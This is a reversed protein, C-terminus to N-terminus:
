QGASSATALALQPSLAAVQMERPRAPPASDDVLGWRMPDDQSQRKVWVYPAKAWPTVYASRNDLVLDGEGTHAVLVAHLGLDARFAVAFFLDEPPYGRAILQERKEIAFDECDGAAGREMGTRNWLEEVGYHQMDTQPRVRSNVARNVDKLMKMREADSMSALPPPPAEVDEPPPPAPAVTQEAVAPRLLLAPEVYARRLFAPRVFTTELFLGGSISATPGDEYRAAPASVAVPAIAAVAPASPAAYSALRARPRPAEDLCLQTRIRCMDVYGRPADVTMGMPMFPSAGEASGAVATETTACVGLLLTAALGAFKLNRM